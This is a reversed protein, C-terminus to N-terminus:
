KNNLKKIYIKNGSIRIIEIESEQDIFDSLASVEIYTDNILAKGMPSCRSITIGTDGVKINDVDITNVKGLIETNLMAKKWSKSRLSLTIGVINVGLTSLLVINGQTVGIDTYALWVGAVMIAFGLIGAVGAGPIVLIEIVLLAIGILILLIVIWWM